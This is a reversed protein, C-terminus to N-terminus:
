RWLVGFQGIGVGLVVHSAQYALFKARYGLIDHEIYSRLRRLLTLHSRRSPTCAHLLQTFRPSLYTKRDESRRPKDRVPTWSYDCTCCAFRSSSCDNITHLSNDWENDIRSGCLGSLSIYYWAPIRLLYWKKWDGVYGKLKRCIILWNTGM